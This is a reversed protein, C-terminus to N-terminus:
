LYAKPAPSFLEAFSYPEALHRRFSKVRSRVSCVGYVTAVFRVVTPYCDALRRREVVCIEKLVGLCPVAM